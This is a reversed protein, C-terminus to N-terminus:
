RNLIVPKIWTQNRSKLKLTYLGAAYGELQLTIVDGAPVTRYLMRGGNDWVEVSEIGTKLSGADIVVRGSTPNPYVKIGEEGMNQLGSYTSYCEGQPLVHVDRSIMKASNGSPDTLMYNIFYVGKVWINVNHSVVKVM